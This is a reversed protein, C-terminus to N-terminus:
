VHNALYQVADYIDVEVYTGAGRSAALVQSGYGGFSGSGGADFVRFSNIASDFVALNGGQISVKSGDNRESLITAGSITGGNITQGNITGGNLRDCSLHGTTIFDAVFGGDMTMATVPPYNDWDDSATPREQYALGGLNWRWRKTVNADNEANQIILETICDNADTKFKVYGGENGNLIELANKRAADLISSKSPMNKITEVTDATQSTLTQGRRVSGSLTIKNQDPNQLDIDLDTVYLWQDISFPDAIIRVSDGINIAEVGDVDALDIASIEMSLQPQSWRTLYAAALADLDDTDTVGDFIVAKAHRGYTSVSTNNSITTSSVRQNVGDYIETETEAGYPTLVNVMSSLDFKQAYELLNYGFQIPQATQRGYGSLPVCDIYRTVSGGSTVRRVRLYGSDKAICKRIVDLLTESYETQWICTDSSTVNTIYGVSFQRDSSRNTNYVGIATQFRQAYTETDLYSPVLMEDALWALDELAYVKATKNIDYTITKVEGRWWENGDKLITVIAGQELLAYSPNSNPVSFEFEGALGVNQKVIASYIVYTGNAPYYIYKNNVFVEFM